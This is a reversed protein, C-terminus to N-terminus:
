ASSPMRSRKVHSSNLRTSKRDGLLELELRQKDLSLQLQQTDYVFLQDGESVDDGERVFLEEVVMQPDKQIETINESVVIGPFRDGPAIGGMNVLDAVKQVYVANEESGCALMMLCLCLALCIVLCKKM